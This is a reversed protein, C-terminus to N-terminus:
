LLLTCSQPCDPGNHLVCQPVCVPLIVPTSSDGAHDTYHWVSIFCSANGSRVLHQDPFDATKDVIYEQKELHMVDLRCDDVNGAVGCLNVAGGLSFFLDGHGSGM